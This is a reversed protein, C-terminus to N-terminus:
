IFYGKFCFIVSAILLSIKYHYFTDIWASSMVIFMPVGLLLAGFVRLLVSLVSPLFSWEVIVIPSKLVESEFLFLVLHILLSVSYQLASYLVLGLLCRCFEGGVVASYM